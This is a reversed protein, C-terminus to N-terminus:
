NFLMVPTKFKLSADFSAYCYKTQYDIMKRVVNDSGVYIIEHDKYNIEFYYQFLFQAYQPSDRSVFQFTQYFCGNQFMQSVSELGLLLGTERIRVNVKFDKQQFTENTWVNTLQWYESRENPIKLLASKIERLEKYLQAQDSSSQYNSNSTPKVSFDQIEYKSNDNPHVQSKKYNQQNLSNSILQKKEQTCPKVQIEFVNSELSVLSIQQCQIGQDVLNKQQSIQLSFPNDINFQDQDDIQQLFNELGDCNDTFNMKELWKILEVIIQEDKRFFQEKSLNTKSNQILVAQDKSIISTENDIWPLGNNILWLVSYATSILDDRRCPEEGQTAFISGFGPTGKFSVQKAQPLLLEGNKIYKQSSGFDILYVQGNQYKNDKMEKLQEFHELISNQIFEMEIYLFSLDDEKMIGHKYYKPIPIMNSQSYDRYQLTEYLQRLNVSEQLHCQGNKDNFFKIARSETGNRYLAVKGYTGAGLEELFAPEENLFLKLFYHLRKIQNKYSLLENLLEEFFLKAVNEIGCYPGCENYQDALENNNRM